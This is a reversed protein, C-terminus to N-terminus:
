HAEVDKSFHNPTFVKACEIDNVPLHIWQFGTDVTDLEFNHIFRRFEVEVHSNDSKVIHVSLHGQNAMEAIRHHIIIIIETAPRYSDITM